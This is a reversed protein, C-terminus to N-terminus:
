PTKGSAGGPASGIRVERAILRGSEGAVDVVVRTGVAMKPVKVPKKDQFYKTEDTLRISVKKGDATEVELHKADLATVAGMVHQQGEHPYVLTFAVLFLVTAAIGSSKRM